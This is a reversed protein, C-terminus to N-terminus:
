VRRRSNNYALLIALAGVLLAMTPPEPVTVPATEFYRLNNISVQANPAGVSQLEFLLQGTEGSLGTLWVPGSSVFDPSNFDTGLYDWLLSDNFWLLLRDGDGLRSWYQDFSLYDANAPITLTQWLYAPSAETLTASTGSTTADIAGWGAFSVSGIPTGTNTLPNGLADYLQAAPHGQYTALKWQTLLRNGIRANQLQTVDITSLGVALNGSGAYFYKNVNAAVQAVSVGKLAKSSSYKLQFHLGTKIGCCDALPAGTSVVDGVAVTVTGPKFERYESILGNGHYIDIVPGPNTTTGSGPIVRVVVGSQAAVVTGAGVPLLDLAYYAKDPLHCPDVYSGQPTGGCLSAEVASPDSSAGGAETILKFTGSSDSLPFSFDEVPLTTSNPKSLPSTPEPTLLFGHTQGQPDVGQGTIQGLNNIGTAEELTWGNGSPGLLSNLDVMTNGITVFAHQGIIGPNPVTSTGVVQGSDNIGMAGAWSNSLSGLDVMQGSSNVIVAHEAQSATDATGAVQGSSNIAAGFSQDGGLTGLDILQGGSNTIFAHTFTAPGSVTDSFGTVQGTRNIGTAVSSPGGLTGLEVMQGSTNTIFARSTGSSTYSAGAVQGAANIGWADSYTYGPLTGLDVMQGSGNTVFAHETGGSTGSYGAVQGSGNIATGVSYSGGLTGLDVMQGSSNTVFAHTAGSSTDSVGTVQGADNIGLGASQAGGLTGLDIISYLPAGSASSAGVMLAAAVLFGSVVGSTEAVRKLCTSRHASRMIKEIHVRPCCGFRQSIEDSIPPGSRDVCNSEFRGWSADAIHALSVHSLLRQANAKARETRHTDAAHTGIASASHRAKAAVRRLWWQLHPISIM